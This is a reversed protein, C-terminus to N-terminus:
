DHTKNDLTTIKGRTEEDTELESPAGHSEAMGSNSTKTTTSYSDIDQKNQELYRQVNIYTFKENRREEGQVKPPDSSEPNM